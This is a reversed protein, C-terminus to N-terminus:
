SLAGFFDAIRVMARELESMSTAYSMRIAQPYGFAEGPVTAVHFDDLLVRCVDLASALVKGKITKGFYASVDPFAYFSAIPRAIKIGPIASLKRFVFDARREYERVMMAIHEPGIKTLAVVSAAQAIANACSTTHGQIIEMARIISRPGLSYGVRWGTMCYTKSLGNVILTRDRFDPAVSLINKAEKGAFVLRDYIDDSIIWINKQARLVEAIEQLEEKSIVAGTPNNPSNLIVARTKPTILAALDKAHLRFGDDSSTKWIVPRVELAQAMEPYSTWYPAPIILETGPDCVAYIANFIAQKAGSSVIIEDLGYAFGTEKKTREAVARRLAATGATATYRGDNARIAACAAEHVTEPPSFDPEGASLSIVDVGAAQLDKAKASIEMTLSAQVAALRNSINM